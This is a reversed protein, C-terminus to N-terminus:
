KLSYFISHVPIVSCIDGDMTTQIDERLKQLKDTSVGMAKGTMMVSMLGLVRRAAFGMRTPQKRALNLRRERMTAPASPRWRPNVVPKRVNPAPETPPSPISSGEAFRVRPLSPQTSVDSEDERSSNPTTDNQM